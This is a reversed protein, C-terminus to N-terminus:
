RLFSSAFTVVSFALIAVIVGIVGYILTKNAKKLNEESAGATIYLFGGYIIMIVAIVAVLGIIWEVFRVLLRVLGFRDLNRIVPIGRGTIPDRPLAQALAVPAAAVFMVVAPIIKGILKM